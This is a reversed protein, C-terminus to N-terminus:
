RRKKREIAPRELRKNREEHANLKKVEKVRKSVEHAIIQITKLTASEPQKCMLLHWGRIEKELQEIRSRMVPVNGDNASEAPTSTEKKM